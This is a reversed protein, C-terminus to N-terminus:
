CLLHSTQLVHWDVTRWSESLERRPDLELGTFATMWRSDSKLERHGPKLSLLMVNRANSRCDGSGFLNQVKASESKWGVEWLTHERIQTLSKVGRLKFKRWQWIPVAVGLRLTTTLKYSFLFELSCETSYQVLLLGGHTKCRKYSPQQIKSLLGHHYTGKILAEKLRKEWDLARHVNCLSMHLFGSPLGPPIM